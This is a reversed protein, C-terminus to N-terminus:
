SSTLEDAFEAWARAWEELSLTQARRQPALGAIELHKAVDQPSMGLGQALSNHIQKRPASFGARVLKFFGQVSSVKVAPEPYLELRVVASDVKPAPYFSHPPVRVVIHPHAYLQVSVSMLSMQGPRAAMAEAVERQVMIVMLRPKFDAELFHRVIPSAVFYPLNAVVKYEAPHSGGHSLLERLNLRLIDGQLVTTNAFPAIEQTLHAALGSDLEVAVVWGARRALERTLVGLGPGVELVMDTDNLEAAALIHGLVGGDVLFHQGLGKRPTLDLRRLLERTQALLSGWHPERKNIGNAM